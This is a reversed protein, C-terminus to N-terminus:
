RGAGTGLALTVLFAGFQRLADEDDFVATFGAALLDKAQQEDHEGTIGLKGGIVVPLTALGPAQRLSRIAREAEHYGHGNVSSVAVLDPRHQQCEQVLLEDSVCAGLNVVVYGEEELMLQLFVLNWTHADSALGTVM